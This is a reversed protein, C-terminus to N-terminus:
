GTSQKTPKLAMSRCNSYLARVFLVLKTLMKQMSFSWRFKSNSPRLRLLHSRSALVGLVMNLVIASRLPRTSRYVTSLNNVWSLAKSVLVKLVNKLAPLKDTPTRAILETVAMDNVEANSKGDALGSSYLGRRIIDYGRQYDKGIIANQANNAAAEFRNAKAMSRLGAAKSNYQANIANKVARGYQM